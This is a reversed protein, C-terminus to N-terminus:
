KTLILKGKATIRLVYREGAHELIVHRENQLLDSVRLCRPTGGSSAQPTAPPTTGDSNPPIRSDNPAAM